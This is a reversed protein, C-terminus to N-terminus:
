PTDVMSRLVHLHFPLVTANQGTARWEGWWDGHQDLPLAMSFYGSGEDHAWGETYHVKSGDPKRVDLFMDTPDAAQGQPNETWAELLAVDGKQYEDTQVFEDVSPLM